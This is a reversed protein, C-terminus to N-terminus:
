KTMTWSGRKKRLKKIPCEYCIGDVNAVKVGERIGKVNHCMNQSHINCLPIFDNSHGGLTSIHDARASTANPGHPLGDNNNSQTGSPSGVIWARLDSLYQSRAVLIEPSVM